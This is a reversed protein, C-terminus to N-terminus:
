RKGYKIHIILFVIGLLLVICGVVIYGIGLFPNKSGLLSTTSIIFRKSGAFSKVPYDLFPSFANKTFKTKGFGKKIADLNAELNKSYAVSLVYNGTPLGSLYGDASRNLRRYLKRFTPLAATRMWVILDENQLGNNDPNKPDM